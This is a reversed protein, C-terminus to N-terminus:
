KILFNSRIHLYQYKKRVKLLDNMFKEKRVDWTGTERMKRIIVKMEESYEKLKVRDELFPLVNLLQYFRLSLGLNNLEKVNIDPINKVKEMNNILDSIVNNQKEIIKKIKEIKLHVEKPLEPLKSDFKKLKQEIEDVKGVMKKMKDLKDDVNTEKILKSVEDIKEKSTGLKQIEEEFEAKFEKLDKRDVANKMKISMEDLMQTIETTLEDLKGIKEKQGQLENVKDTIESFITQVKAATRDSYKKIDEIKNIKENIKKSIDVLNDFSKVKEMIERSQQFEKELAKVLNELKEIKVLNEMIEQEKKEFGKKVKLPEIDGVVGRIEEFDKEVKGFSRETELIMSRLEGIEESMQAMRENFEDKYGSIIDFKGELKETKLMIDTLSGDGSGMEESDLKEEIGNKYDLKQKPIKETVGYKKKLEEEKKKAEEEKLEEETKEKEEINDEDKSKKKLKGLLGRKKKKPSEEKEEDKMETKKSDEKEETKKSQDKVEEKEEVVEEEGMEEKDEQKSEEDEKEDDDEKIQFDELNEELM